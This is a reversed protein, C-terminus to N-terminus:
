KNRIFDFHKSRRHKNENFVKSKSSISSKIHSSKANNQITMKEYEENLQSMEKQTQDIVKKLKNMM